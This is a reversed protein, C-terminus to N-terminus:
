KLALGYGMRAGTGYGNTRELKFSLDAHRYSSGYLMPEHCASYELNSVSDVRIAVIVWENACNLPCQIVEAFDRCRARIEDVPKGETLTERELLCKLKRSATLCM